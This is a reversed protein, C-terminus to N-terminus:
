RRSGGGGVGGGRAGSYAVKRKKCPTEVGAALAGVVRPSAVPCWGPDTLLMGPDTLRPNEVASEMADILSTGEQYAPDRARRGHRRKYFWLYWSQGQSFSTAKYNCLKGHFDAGPLNSLEELCCESQFRRVTSADAEPTVRAPWLLLWWPCLGLCAAAVAGWCAGCIFGVASGVTCATWQRCNPGHGAASSASIARTVGYAAPIAFAPGGVSLCCQLMLVCIACHGCRRLFVRRALPETYPRNGRAFAWFSDM